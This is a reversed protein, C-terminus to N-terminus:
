QDIEFLLTDIPRDSSAIRLRKTIDKNCIVMLMALSVFLTSALPHTWYRHEKFSFPVGQINGNGSRGKKEEKSLHKVFSFLVLLASLWIVLYGSLWTIEM